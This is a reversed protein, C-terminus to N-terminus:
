KIEEVDFTTGPPCTVRKHFGGIERVDFFVNPRKPTVDLISKWTVVYKGNLTDGIQIEQATKRVTKKRM